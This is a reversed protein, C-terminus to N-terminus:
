QVELWWSVNGALGGPPIRLNPVEQVTARGDQGVYSRSVVVKEGAVAFGASAGSGALYVDTAPITITGLAAPPIDVKIIYSNGVCTGADPDYVLFLAFPDSSSGPKAVFLLPSATVQTRQGLTGSTGSPKPIISIQIAQVVPTGGSRSRAAVYLRPYFTPTVGNKANVRTSREYFSGSSFAYLDYTPSASAPYSAVAPAYYLPNTAGLNLLRSASWASPALTWLQGNLDVQVAQNVVNDPQFYSSGARWLVADAFSQSHVLASANQQTASQSTAYRTGDVPNLRLVKPNSSAIFREDFGGGMVLQWVALDSGGLAPVSWTKGLEDYDTRTKSWLAKVPPPDSTIGFGYEPDAAENDDLLDGDGNLDRGPFPHTVDLAFVGTGGPGETGILVTKYAGEGAFWVDAFRPSNGVGYIHQSPLKPQGTLFESPKTQYNKFLTVQNALQDPPILAVLEAGDVADFGHIFGDSSGAWVVSHRNQYTTEFESHSQLTNQKWVQPPGVVAQTSNIIAGLKWPRPTGSGNNGLMFDVTQSTIANPDACGAGCLTNLTTVTAADTDIAVVTPPSTSPNWTYLKRAVGNNVSKRTGDFSSTGDTNLGGIALVEGGDWLCNSKVVAAPNTRDVWGCPKFCNWKTTDNCDAKVDYAYLHGRWRPYAASSVFATLGESSLPSSTVSPASTTYDGTGVAALIASFADRLADATTAFYAYRGHAPTQSPCPPSDYNGPAGEPLYPDETFEFGSDGNPSSADTRGRYATYNLECPGVADSVGIVWTRTYLRRGGVVLWWLADAAEAAFGNAGYQTLTLTKSTPYPGPCTYGSKGGDPCGTGGSSASSCTTCPFDSSCTEAWNGGNSGNSSCADPNCNNSLGDTVLITAYVRGCTLKPDATLTFRKSQFTTPFDGSDYTGAANTVSGGGAVGQVVSKAFVMAGKTPTGGSAFLGRYTTGGITTTVSNKKLCAQLVQVDGTDNSNPPVVLTAQDCDAAVGSFIQLGWNVTDASKGVLNDPPRSDCNCGVTPPQATLGGTAFPNGPNAIYSSSTKVWTFTYKWATQSTNNLTQTPGTVGSTWNATLPWQRSTDTCTGGPPIWATIITIANGLANKVTAMRSPHTQQVTLTATWTKCNSYSCNSGTVTGWSASLWSGTQDVGVDHSAIEDWAMSGSVDFVLLINPRVFQTSIQRMPDYGEATPDLPDTVQAAAVGALLLLPAVLAIARYTLSMLSRKSGAERTTSHSSKAM